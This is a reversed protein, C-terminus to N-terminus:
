NTKNSKAVITNIYKVGMSIIYLHILHMVKKLTPDTRVSFFFQKEIWDKSKPKKRKKKKKKKCNETGLIFM